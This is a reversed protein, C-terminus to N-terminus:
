PCEVRFGAKTLAAAVHSVIYDPVEYEIDRVKDILSFGSGIPQGGNRKFIDRVVKDKEENINDRYLASMRM